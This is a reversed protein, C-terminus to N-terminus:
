RWYSSNPPPKIGDADFIAKDLGGTPYFDGRVAYLRANLLRVSVRFFRNGLAGPGIGEGWVPRWALDDGTFPACDDYSFGPLPEGLEDTLEVRAEGHPAQVNLSLEPGDCFLVRTTVSGWGGESALYVFGDPRLEHFLLASQPKEPSGLGQGHEFGGSASCIRLVDGDRVLSSPYVVGSGPEDPEGNAIFTDRLGRQFHWGNMSYALQCDNHGLFGKGPRSVLAQDPHFLWVFGVFLGEYPFVPMGYIEAMPSDLADAQIALEPRSFSKWDPTEYVAMRRDGWSPRATVVYADRRPNWFASVSPDIGVPHWSSGEEHRWHVGDPSVWLPAIPRLQDKGFSVFGKLRKSTDEEREDYFPPGWERFESLPLVQHPTRRDSLPATETLDPVRWQLGDDSEIVSPISRYRLTNGTTVVDNKHLYGEYLFGQYLCRWLGTEQDRFVTPYAFSVDLYPDTFQAALKPRGM